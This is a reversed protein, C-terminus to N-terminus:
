RPVVRQPPTLMSNIQQRVEDITRQLAAIQRFQEAQGTTLLTLKETLGVRSDATERQDTRVAIELAALREAHSELRGRLREQERDIETVAISMRDFWTVIRPAGFTLMVGVVVMSGRAIVKLWVSEALREAAGTATM